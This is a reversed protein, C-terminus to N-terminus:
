RHMLVRGNRLDACSEATLDATEADCVFAYM